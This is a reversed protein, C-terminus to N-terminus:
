IRSEFRATDAIRLIICVVCDYVFLPRLYLLTYLLSRLHFLFFVNNAGDRRECRRFRLPDWKLEYCLVDRGKEPRLMTLPENFFAQKGRLTSFLIMAHEDPPLWLCHTMVELLPHGIDKKSKSAREQTAKKEREEVRHHPSLCRCCGCCCCCNPKVRAARPRYFLNLPTFNTTIKCAM